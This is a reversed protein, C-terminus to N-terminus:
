NGFAKDLKDKLIDVAADELVESPKKRPQPEPEPTPAAPKTQVPRPAPPQPKPAAPAPKPKSVEPEPTPPPTVDVAPTPTVVPTSIPMPAAPTVAPTSQSQTPAPPIVVPPVDVQVAPVPAATPAPSSQASVSVEAPQTEEGNMASIVTFAGATVLAAMGAAVVPMLWGPMGKRPTDNEKAKARPRDDEKPPHQVPPALKSIGSLRTMTTSPDHGTGPLKPAAVGLRDRTREVQREIASFIEEQVRDWEAPSDLYGILPTPKGPIMQPRSLVRVNQWNCHGVLIPVVALEGQEFRREIRPLEIERIFDSNLFNRSVLLVAIHARKIADVIEQKWPDGGGLRRRDFWVEAGLIELSKILRPMLKNEDFWQADVHSYSVFIHIQAM